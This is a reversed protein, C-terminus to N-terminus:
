SANAERVERTSQLTELIAENIQAVSIPKTFFRTAGVQRCEERTKADTYASLVFIPIHATHPDSRIIKIAESGSMVPMRLDMLIVDPQWIKAQETGTQGNDACQVHYGMLEFMTSLLQRLDAEDEVYLVRPKSM